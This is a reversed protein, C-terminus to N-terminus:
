PRLVPKGEQDKVWRESKSIEDIMKELNYLSEPARSPHCNIVTKKRGGATISTKTVVGDGAVAEYREEFSFFGIRNFEDLIQRLHVQSIRTEHRGKAAVYRRGEYVVKGSGHIFLSYDPCAGPCMTRELGIELDELIM